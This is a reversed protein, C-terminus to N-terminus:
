KLGNRNEDAPHRSQRVSRCADHFLLWSLFLPGLAILWTVITGDEFDMRFPIVILSVALVLLFVALAFRVKPMGDTDKWVAVSTRIRRRAPDYPLINSQRAIFDARLEDLDKPHESM